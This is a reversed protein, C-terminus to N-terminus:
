VPPVGRGAFVDDRVTVCPLHAEFTDALRTAYADAFQLGHPHFRHGHHQLTRSVSACIELMLRAASRPLNTSCAAHHPGTHRQTRDNFTKPADCFTRAEDRSGTALFD